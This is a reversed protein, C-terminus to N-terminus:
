INKFIPVSSCSEGYALSKVIPTLIATIEIYAKPSVNKLSCGKLLVRQNKYLSFDSSKFIYILIDEEFTDKKFYAVSDMQELYHAILMYTWQPIIADNSCFILTHKSKYAQWDRNELALRFESEKLLWEQVLFDKIDLFAMEENNPYLTELDLQVIAKKEVQNEM